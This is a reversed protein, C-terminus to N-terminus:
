RQDIFQHMTHLLGAALGLKTARRCVLSTLSSSRSNLTTVLSLLLGIVPPNAKKTKVISVTWLAFLILVYVIFAYVTAQHKVYLAGM